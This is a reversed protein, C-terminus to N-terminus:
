LRYPANNVLGDIRGITSAAELATKADTAPM